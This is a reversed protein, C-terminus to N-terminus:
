IEVIFYKENFLYMGLFFHAAELKYARVQNQTFTGLAEKM